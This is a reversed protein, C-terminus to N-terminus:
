NLYKKPPHRPPGAGGDLVRYRRKLRRIRFSGWAERFGGPAAFLYGAAAAVLTAALQAWDARFLSAVVGWGVFIWALHRAQMTLAGFM